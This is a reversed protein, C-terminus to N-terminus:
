ASQGRPLSPASPRPCAAARCSLFLFGWGTLLAMNLFMLWKPVGALLSGALGFGVISLAPAICSVCLASVALVSGGAALGASAAGARRGLALTGALFAAALGLTAATFYDQTRM